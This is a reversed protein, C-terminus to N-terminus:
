QEPGGCCWFESFTGVHLKNFSDLHDGWAWFYWLGSCCSPLVVGADNHDWMVSLLTWFHSKVIRTSDLSSFLSQLWVAATFIEHRRHEVHQSPHQVQKCTHPEEHTKTIPSFNCSYPFSMLPLISMKIIELCLTFCLPDTDMMCRCSVPSHQWLTKTGAVFLCETCM